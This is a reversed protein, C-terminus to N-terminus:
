IHLRLSLIAEVTSTAVLYLTIETFSWCLTCHPRIHDYGKNSPYHYSCLLSSFRVKCKM